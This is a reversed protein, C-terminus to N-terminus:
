WGERMIHVYGTVGVVLRAGEGKDLICVIWNLRPFSMIFSEFAFDIVVAM